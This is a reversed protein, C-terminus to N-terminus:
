QASVPCAATRRCSRCPRGTPAGAPPRRRVQAHQARLQGLRQAGRDEGPERLVRLVARLRRQGVRRADFGGRRRTLRDRAPERGGGRRGAAAPGRGRRAPDDGGHARGLRVLAVVGLGPDDLLREAAVRRGADRAAATAHRGPQGHAGVRVDRGRLQPHVPELDGPDRDGHVQRERSLGPIVREAIEIMERAHEDRVENWPRGIDWAAIGSIALPHDGAPGLTDDVLSPIGLWVGAPKGAAIRAKDEEHDWQTPVFIEHALDLGDLDMDTALFVVFASHSLSYRSLKKVFPKPLHEEGLLTLFTQRPDANSVVYKASVTHGSELTVASTRGETVHIKAAGNGTVVDGGHARLGAVIANILSAFGGISHYTGEAGNMIVQSIAVFSLESPTVGQYPWSANVASRAEDHDGLHERAVDDMTRRLHSFYEPFRAATEDLNHLGLNMPMAHGQEHMTLMMRARGARGWKGTRLRGGTTPCVPALRDDNRFLWAPAM